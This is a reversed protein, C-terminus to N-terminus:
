KLSAHFRGWRITLPFEWSYIVYRAPGTLNAAPVFGIPGLLSANKQTIPGAHLMQAPPQHDALARSDTSGDRNDNMMLYHGPPVVYAPTNDFPGTDGASEIVAHLVGGPLTELYQRCPCKPDEADLYDEIQQRPAMTGNIWLRGARLQVTDGPLGILRKVFRGVPQGESPRISFTTWM